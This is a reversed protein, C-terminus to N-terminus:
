RAKFLPTWCTTQRLVLWSLLRTKAAAAARRRPFTVYTAAWLITRVTCGVAMALRLSLLGLVGHHKRVYQDLSDFFHRNIRAKEGIGSAGGVHVVTAAPTFGVKWGAKL